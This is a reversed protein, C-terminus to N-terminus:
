ISSNVHTAEACIRDIRDKVATGVLVRTAQKHGRVILAVEIDACSRFKGSWALERALRQIHRAKYLKKMISGTGNWM